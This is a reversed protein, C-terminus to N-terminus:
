AGYLSSPSVPQRQWIQFKQAKFILWFFVSQSWWGGIKKSLEKLSRSHLPDPTMKPSSTSRRCSSSGPWCWLPTSSTTALAWQQLSIKENWHSYIHGLIKENKSDVGYILVSLGTCKSSTNVLVLGPLLSPFIVCWLTALTCIRTEM